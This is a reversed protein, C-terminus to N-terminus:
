LVSRLSDVIGKNINEKNKIIQDLEEKSIWKFEYHEDSLKLTSADAEVKYFLLMLSINKDNNYYGVREFVGLLPGFSLIEIGLEEKLERKLAKDIDEGKNIRGGPLDYVDDGQRTIQKLVLAKGNNVIVAKIGVHFNKEMSNTDQQVLDVEQNVEWKKLRM